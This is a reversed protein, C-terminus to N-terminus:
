SPWGYVARTSCMDIVLVMILRLVSLLTGVRVM